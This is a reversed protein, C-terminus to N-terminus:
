QRLSISLQVGYRLKTISVSGIRIRRLMKTYGSPTIRSSNVCNLSGIQLSSHIYFTRSVNVLRSKLEIASTLKDMAGSKRIVDNLKNVFQGQTSM